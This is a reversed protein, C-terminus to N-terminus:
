DALFNAHAVRTGMKGKVEARTQELVRYKSAHSRERPSTAPFHLIHVEQICPTSKGRVQLELTCRTVPGQLSEHHRLALVQRGRRGVTAPCGAEGRDTEAILLPSADLEVLEDRIQRRGLDVM